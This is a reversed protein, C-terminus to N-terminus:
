EVGNKSAMARCEDADCDSNFCLLGFGVCFCLIETEFFRETEEKKRKEMRICIFEQPPSKRKDWKGVVRRALESYKEHRVESHPCFSPYKGEQCYRAVFNRSCVEQLRAHIHTKRDQSQYDILWYGKRGLMHSRLWVQEQTTRRTDTM